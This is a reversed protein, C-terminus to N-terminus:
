ISSAIESQVDKNELLCAYLVFLYLVPSFDLVSAFHNLM